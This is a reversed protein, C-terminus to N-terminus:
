DNESLLQYIESLDPSLIIETRRNAARGEETNNTQVPHFQGKGSATIRMPDFGFDNTIIRLISTARAASLDWNDKYLSTEIPISDTHGEIVVTIDSTNKIVGALTKLAEKGKIDVQDSGSKFLLKEELSVYVSGDKIYLSLENAKYNILADALSNKLDIMVNRQAQIKEQLDRLSRAQDSITIKSNNSLTNLDKQASSYQDEVSMKEKNLDAVQANCVILQNQTNTNEKQLKDVRAQSAQLKKSPGCSILILSLSLSGLVLFVLSKKM